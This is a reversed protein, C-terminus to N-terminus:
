YRTARGTNLARRYADGTREEVASRAISLMMLGGETDLTEIVTWVEGNITVTDNVAPAAIGATADLSITLRAAYVATVGVDRQERECGLTEVIGVITKPSGGDVTYSITEGMYDLLTARAGDMYDDTFGM